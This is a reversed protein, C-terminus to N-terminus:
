CAEFETDCDQLCTLLDARVLKGTKNYPLATVLCIPRPMFVPDIQQALQQRLQEASIGPAVVLAALRVRASQAAEPVFVVADDVGPLAKLRTTIDALSGRKGGIKILDSHRGILSFRGDSELRLQDPLTIPNAQSPIRLSVSDGELILQYLPLLQWYSNNCIRRTAIAGTESSGYIERVETDLLTEIQHAVDQSMPATASIIFETAPWGVNLTTCAKLHLPTTVLIRPAAIASLAQQIDFPYFPHQHFIGVDGVLPLMISMEFGFMHQPPVTAVMMHHGKRNVGFRELVQQAGCLLQQWTKVNAVPQGTSGSTYLEAVCQTAPICAISWRWTIADAEHMSDQCLSAMAADDMEILSTSARRIRQLEAESRNSPMVTICEHLMAAAFLVLFHYHDDCLNLLRQQQEATGHHRSLWERTRMVHCAFTHRDLSRGQYWAIIHTDLLETM